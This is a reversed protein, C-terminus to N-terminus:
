NRDREKARELGFITVNGGSAQGLRGCEWGEESFRVGFVGTRCRSGSDTECGGM